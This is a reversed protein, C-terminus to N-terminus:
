LGYLLGWWSSRSRADGDNDEVGVRDPHRRARIQFTVFLTIQSM